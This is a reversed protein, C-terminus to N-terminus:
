NPLQLWCSSCVTEPSGPRYRTEQVLRAEICGSQLLVPSPRVRSFKQSTRQHNLNRYKRQFRDAADGEGSLHHHTTPEPVRALVAAAVPEALLVRPRDAKSDSTGLFSQIGPGASKLQGQGFSITEDPDSQGVPSWNNRNERETRFYEERQNQSFSNGTELRISRRTTNHEDLHSRHKRDTRHRTESTKSRGCEATPSVFGPIKWAM